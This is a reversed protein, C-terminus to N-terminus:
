EGVVPKQRLYVEAGWDVDEPLLFCGGAGPRYEGAEVADLYARQLSTARPFESLNEPLMRRLGGFLAAPLSDDTLGVPFLYVERQFRVMNSTPRALEQLATNLLWSGCVFANFRYDPFHRPFFELAREFAEGCADYDMPDGGPIHLHLVPDGPALAQRWGDLPLSVEEALAHGQPVIPNGRAVEDTIALEAEWSGEPDDGERLIQGDARYRVGAESLALVQGTAANRFVRINYRSNGFQFQLRALRYIIGTYHNMLWNILHPVVEPYGQEEITQRFYHAIQSMTAAVVDEPIEHERHIREMRDHGAMLAILYLLAGDEGLASEVLRPWTRVRAADYEAEHLWYYAHWAVASGADSAAIAGAAREVTSVFEEPVYAARCAERVAQPELFAPVAGRASEQSQEWGDSLGGADEAIGLQEAVHDLKM